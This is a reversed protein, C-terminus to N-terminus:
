RAASAIRILARDACDARRRLAQAEWLLQQAREALRDAEGDLVASRRALELVRVEQIDGHGAISRCSSSAIICCVSQLDCYSAITGGIIREELLVM